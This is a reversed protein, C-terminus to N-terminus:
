SIGINGHIKEWEFRIRLGNSELVDSNRGLRLFCKSFDNFEIYRYGSLWILWLVHLTEVEYGRLVIFGYDRLGM